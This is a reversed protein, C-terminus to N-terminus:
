VQAAYRARRSFADVAGQIVQYDKPNRVVAQIQEPGLTKSGLGLLGREALLLAAVMAAAQQLAEPIVVFGATYTILVNGRGEPFGGDRHEIWLGHPPLYLDEGSDVSDTSDIVTQLTDDIYVSAVSTIPWYTTELNRGGDGSLRETYTASWAPRGIKQTLYSSAAAIAAMAEAELSTPVERFLRLRDLTILPRM